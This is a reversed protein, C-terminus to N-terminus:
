AAGKIQETPSQWPEIQELVAIQDDTLDAIVDHRWGFERYIRISLARSPKKAGTLVQSAYPQSLGIREMLQTYHPKEM